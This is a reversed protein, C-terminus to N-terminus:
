QQNFNKSLKLNWGMQELEAKSYTLTQNLGEPGEIQVKYAASDPISPISTRWACGDVKVLDPDSTGTVFDGDASVQVTGAIAGNANLLTIRAGSFRRGLRNAALCNTASDSADIAVLSVKLVHGSQANGGSDRSLAVGAVGGLAVAVVVGAVLYKTTRHTRRVAPSGLSMPGTNDAHGGDVNADCGGRVCPL